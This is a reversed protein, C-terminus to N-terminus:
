LDRSIGGRLADSHSRTKDGPSVESTVLSDCSTSNSVTACSPAEPLSGLTDRDTAASAQTDRQPTMSSLAVGEVPSASGGDKVVLSTEALQVYCSDVVQSRRGSRGGLGQSGRRLASMAAATPSLRHSAGGATAAPAAAPANEPAAAVEAVPPMSSKRRPSSESLKKSPCVGIRTGDTCSSRSTGSGGSLSPEAFSGKTTRRHPSKASLPNSLQLDHLIAAFDPRQEAVEALCAEALAVVEAPCDPADEASLSPRLEGNAVMNMVAHVSMPAVTQSAVGLTGCVSSRAARPVATGAIVREFPPRRTAMHVITAGFSWVDASADYRERRIVEPAMYSPTGVCTMTEVARADVAERLDLMQKSANFDCIKALYRPKATVLINAPKLDRHVIGRGHLYSMGMAVEHAIRMLSAEVSNLGGGGVSHSRWGIPEGSSLLRSLSQELLEMVLGHKSKLDSVIGFTIVVHPHRLQSMLENEAKLAEMERQTEESRHDGGPKLIKVAVESRGWVAQFVMGGAGGGIPGDLHIERWPILHARTAPGVGNSSTPGSSSPPTGPLQSVSGSEAATACGSSAELISRARSLRAFVTPMKFSRPSAASDREKSSSRSQGSTADVKFEDDRELHAPSRRPRRVKCVAIVLVLVLVLAVTVGAGAQM